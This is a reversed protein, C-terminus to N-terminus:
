DEVAETGGPAKACPDVRGWDDYAFRASRISSGAEVAGVPKLADLMKSELEAFEPGSPHRTGGYSKPPGRCGPESPRHCPGVPPDAAARPFACEVIRAVERGRRRRGWTAWTLRASRSARTAERIFRPRPRRTMKVALAVGRPNECARRSGLRAEAI